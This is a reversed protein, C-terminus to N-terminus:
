RGSILGLGGDYRRYLLRGRGSARDTFFLFPLWGDALWRAAERPRLTPVRHPSVTMAEPSGAAPHMSRQRALRLGSPGSRYVVADEGTERDTFLHADYDMAGLVVSARDPDCVELAFPKHRALSGAGPLGLPRRHPDPWPWVQWAGTLRDLQRCLRSAAVQIAGAVSRGPVEVRAPRGVLTLNIQVLAPGGPCPAGTLRLRVPGDVGDHRDLVVRVAAALSDRDADDVGGRTVVDFGPLGAGIVSDERRRAKV